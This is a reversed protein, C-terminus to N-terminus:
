QKSGTLEYTLTPFGGDGVASGLDVHGTFSTPAFSITLKVDSGDPALTGTARLRGTAVGTAHNIEAPQDEVTLQTGNLKARLGLPSPGDAASKIGTAFMLLITGNSGTDISMVDPDTLGDKSIGVTYSGLIGASASTSGGCGAGVVAGAGVALSGLCLFAVLGVSSRLRLSAMNPM